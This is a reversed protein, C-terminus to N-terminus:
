PPGGGGGGGGGGGPDAWAVSVAMVVFFCM